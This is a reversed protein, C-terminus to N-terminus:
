SSTCASAFAAMASVNAQQQAAMMMMERKKAAKQRRQKNTEAICLLITAAKWLKADEDRGGGCLELEGARKMLVGQGNELEVAYFGHGSYQLCWDARARM